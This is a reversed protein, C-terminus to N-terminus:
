SVLDLSKGVLNEQSYRCSENPRQTMIQRHAALLSKAYPHLILDLFRAQAATAKVPNKIIGRATSSPM